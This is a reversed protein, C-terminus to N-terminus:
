STQGTFPDRDSYFTKPPYWTEYEDQTALGHTMLIEGALSYRKTRLHRIWTHSSIESSDLKARLERATYSGSEVGNRDITWRGFWDRILHLM